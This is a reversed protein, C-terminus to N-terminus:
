SHKFQTLERYLEGLEIEERTECKGYAVLLQMIDKSSLEDGVIDAYEFVTPRYIRYQFVKELLEKEFIRVFEESNEKRFLHEYMSLYSPPTFLTAFYKISLYVCAVFCMEIEERPSFDGREYKELAPVSPDVKYLLYRDFLDIAQFLIRPKYWEIRVENNKNYFYFATCIAWQREPCDLITIRKEKEGFCTYEGRLLWKERIGDIIERSDDFFAHDLLESITPRHVPYFELASKLMDAFLEPSGCQGRFEERTNEPFLVKIFGKKKGRPLRVKFMEKLKRTEKPPLREPLAALIQELVKQNDDRSVVLPSGVIMEYIVCGVAWVDVKYDYNLAGMAIEPARYWATVMRPTQPEQKTYFKSLGFDCLKAKPISDTSFLLVNGPKIDRHIIHNHHMYELGLLIDLVLPKINKYTIRKELIPHQIFEGLDMDGLELVFHLKDDKYNDRTPSMRGSEFPRGYIVRELRVINPHGRLRLLIDPERLNAAWDVEKEVINRKIVYTDSSSTEPSRRSDRAVYVKGYAGEGVVEGKIMKFPLVEM